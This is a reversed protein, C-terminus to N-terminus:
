RAAAGRGTLRELATRLDILEPSDPSAAALEADVTTGEPETSLVHLSGDGDVEVEIDHGGAHWEVQLGGDPLPFYQPSPTSGAMVEALVLVVTQVALETVPEARRGDWGRRLAVLLQLQQEADVAWLPLPTQNGSRDYHQLSLRRRAPPRHGTLLAHHAPPLVAGATRSLTFSAPSEDILTM